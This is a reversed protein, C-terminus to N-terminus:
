DDDVRHGGHATVCLWRDATWVWTQVMRRRFTEHGDPGDLDHDVTCFLVATDGVVVVEPDRLEQLRWRTSGATFTDIYTDRDM